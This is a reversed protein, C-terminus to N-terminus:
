HHLVDLPGVLLDLFRLNLSSNCFLLSFLFSRINIDVLDCLSYKLLLLIELLRLLNLWECLLRQVLSLLLIVILQGFEGGGLLTLGLRGNVLWDLSHLSESRILLSGCDLGGHSGIDVEECFLRM